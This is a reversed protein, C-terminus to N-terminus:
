GGTQSVEVLENNQEKLHDVLNLGEFRPKVDFQEGNADPIAIKM